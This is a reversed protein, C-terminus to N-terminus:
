TRWWRDSSPPPPTAGAASTSAWAGTRLCSPTDQLGASCTLLSQPCPAPLLPWPHSSLPCPAPRGVVDLYQQVVSKPEPGLFVYVDLIGGTSRWTLAPSPQLVVDPSFYKPEPVLGGCIPSGHATGAPHTQPLQVSGLKALNSPCPFLHAQLVVQSMKLYRPHPPHPSQQHSDRWMDGKSVPLSQPLCVRLNECLLSWQPSGETQHSVWPM